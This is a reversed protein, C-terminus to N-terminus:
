AASGNIADPSFGRRPAKKEPQCPMRQERAPGAYNDFRCFEGHFTLDVSVGAKGQRQKAIIIEAIGKHASDPRYYEDRFVFMVTDADQEIEGSERLDSLRPKQEARNEVGRNLQCLVLVPVKLEKALAKLSRSIAGVEQTRNEAKERMLSLHDVVILSCGYKAKLRRARARLDIPRLAPTDDIHMPVSRVRAGIQSFEDDIPIRGEIIDNLPVRATSAFSRQVMQEATMEMSFVFVPQGSSKGVFEAINQALASKGMSPRGALIVLDGAAMPNLVRDLEAFGTRVGPARKERSAQEIMHEVVSAVDAVSRAQKTLRETRGRIDTLRQEAQQVVEDASLANPKYGLDALENGARIVERLIAKERVIGAHRLGYSAAPCDAALQGLYAYGGAEDLRGCGRLFEAVAIFDIPQGSHLRDILAVYLARHEHNYFDEPVLAEAIDFAVREDLMMAGLVTQEAEIAHPPQKPTM